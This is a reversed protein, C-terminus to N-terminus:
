FYPVLRVTRTALTPHDSIRMGVVETVLPGVNLSSLQKFLAAPDTRARERFDKLLADLHLWDDSEVMMRLEPDVLIRLRGHQDLLALM